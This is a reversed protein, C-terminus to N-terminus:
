KNFLQILEPYSLKTVDSLMQPIEENDINKDELLQTWLTPSLLYHYIENEYSDAKAYYYKLEPESYNQPIGASIIWDMVGKNLEHLMVPFNIAEATITGGDGQKNFQLKNYGQTIQNNDKIVESFAQPDITWLYMGTASTYVDYLERLSPNIKDLEESVLHFLGKWVHMSSGHVLGNLIVRKQIEDRMNNKQELTLELFSEPNNDQNTGLITQPNIIAKLDVYDPVQYLEKITKIALAELQSKHPTESRVILGQVGIVRGLAQTPDLNPNKDQYLNLCRTFEKIALQEPKFSYVKNQDLPFMKSDLQKILRENPLHSYNALLKSFEKSGIDIKKAM